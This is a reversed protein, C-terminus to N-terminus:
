HEVILVEKELLVGAKDHALIEFNRAKGRPYNEM